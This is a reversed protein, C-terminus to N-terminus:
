AKGNGLQQAFRKSELVSNNGTSRLQRRLAVHAVTDGVVHRRYKTIDYNILPFTFISFTGLLRFHTM